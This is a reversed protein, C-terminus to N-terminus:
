SDKLNQHYENKQDDNKIEEIIVDEDEYNFSVNEFQLSSKISTESVTPDPPTGRVSTSAALFTLSPLTLLLTTM